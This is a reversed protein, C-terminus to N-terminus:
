GFTEEWYDIEKREKFQPKSKQREPRVSREVNTLQKNIISLAGAAFLLGVGAGLVDGVEAM